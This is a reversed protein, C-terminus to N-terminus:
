TVWHHATAVAVTPHVHLSLPHAAPHRVVAFSSLMKSSRSAM